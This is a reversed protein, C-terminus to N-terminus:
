TTRRGVRTAVMLFYGARVKAMAESIMHADSSPANNQWLEEVSGHSFIFQAVAERLARSHDEFRIMAFGAYQLLAELEARVLMGSVCSGKLTRVASIEEANRAYLDSIMLQGGIRLVRATEALAKPINQMVSLSCEALVGDISADAFPLNEACARVHHPAAIDPAVPVEDPLFPDIGIADFGCIRLFATSEGSGCGLDVVRAEPTLQAIEVAHATLALGGPHPFWAASGPMRGSEYTCRAVSTCESTM